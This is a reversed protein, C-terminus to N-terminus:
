AKALLLKWKVPDGSVYDGLDQHKICAQEGKESWKRKYLIHGKFIAKLLWFIALRGKTQGISTFKQM